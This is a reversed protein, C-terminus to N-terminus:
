KAIDIIWQFSEKFFFSADLYFGGHEYILALRYFDSPTQDYITM